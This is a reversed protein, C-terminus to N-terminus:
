GKTPMLYTENLWRRHFNQRNQPPAASCHQVGTYRYLIIYARLTVEFLLDGGPLPLYIKLEHLAHPTGM